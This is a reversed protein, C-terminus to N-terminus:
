LIFLMMQIEPETIGKARILEMENHIISKKDEGSEKLYRHFCDAADDIHGAFWLCFGYNLLDDTSPNKASLLQNYLKEAQDYKGDNTLTWALVRNVNADDPSEYNLRFLVKEAEEFRQLNTLCVSRNLQYAKKDPKLVLLKDYIGLADKYDGDNFLARAYGALARENDPQLEMAKAYNERVCNGSGVIASMLYYQFDLRNEGYNALMEIAADKHKRKLLFATVENFYTEVHTRTFIPSRLVIYDLSEVDFINRFANRSPFLRLFRYLDQLCTRRIYAPQEQDEQQVEAIPMDGRMLMERLSEPMRNIVQTFALLFSYKDSNCFPGSNFLSNLFRNDEYKGIIHSIDPHDKYFPVFWNMLENFFPFRKMQSFGGFYIDSGQKQMSMMKQFSQELRELKEEEADPHLIDTLEDYEQEEIIGNHNIRFGQQSLLDPMIETQITQRDREVDICFILQKQLEVLERCCAEDEVMKQVLEVAERYIRLGITSGVAVSLAWGIFARQRVQEDVAKQYVHVMMRFKAIDFLNMTALMVSSLILQQDITDVTPSLVIDEMAASFGDTWIGSTLIYDFLEVMESHHRAYLAATSRNELGALAVDSVFAELSERIVMPSWDRPTTHVRAYLSDLFPTHRVNYSGAITAYLVYMRHLLNDYLAEMQPDKYGRRWYNAMLQYDSEIAYLQDSNIQHPHVALFNGTATIANGLNRELLADLIMDLADNQIM